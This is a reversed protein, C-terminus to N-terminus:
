RAQEPKSLVHGLVELPWALRSARSGKGKETRDIVFHDWVDVVDRVM